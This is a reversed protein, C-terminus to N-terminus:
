YLEYNFPSNSTAFAQFRYFRTPELYVAIERLYGYDGSPIYKKLDISAGGLDNPNGAGGILAFGTSTLIYAM